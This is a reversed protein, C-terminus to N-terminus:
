RSPPAQRRATGAALITIASLWIITATIPTLLWPYYAYYFLGWLPGFFLFIFFIWGDSLHLRGYARWLNDPVLRAGAYGFGVPLTAALPELWAARGIGMLYGGLSTAFILMYGLHFGIFAGQYTYLRIATTTALNHRQWFANDRTSTLCGILLPSILTGGAYCVIAVWAQERDFFPWHLSPSIMLWTILWTWVWFLTQATRVSTLRDLPWRILAVLMRPWKPPPGEAAKSMLTRLKEKFQHNFGEPLAEATRGKEHSTVPEALESAHIPEGPFVQHQEDDNLQRYYGATLLANAEALSQVGKCNHLVKLLSILVRRNDAQIKSKGREWESVAQGTYGHDGLVEGLLEGLREQTLM